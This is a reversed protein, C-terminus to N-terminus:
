VECAFGSRSSASHGLREIGGQLLQKIGESGVPDAPEGRPDPQWGVDTNLREIYVQGSHLKRSVLHETQAQRGVAKV